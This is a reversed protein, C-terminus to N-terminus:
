DDTLEWYGVKNKNKDLIPTRNIFGYDLEMLVQELIRKIEKVNDAYDEGFIEGDTNIEIKFM